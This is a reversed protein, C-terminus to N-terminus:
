IKHLLETTELPTIKWIIDETEQIEQKEPMINLAKRQTDVWCKLHYKLDNATANRSNTSTNMRIFISKDPFLEAVKLM